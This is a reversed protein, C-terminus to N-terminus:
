EDLLIEVGDERQAVAGVDHLFSPDNRVNWGAANIRIGHAAMEHESRPRRSSLLCSRAKKWGGPRLEGNTLSSSFEDARVETEAFTSVYKKCVVEQWFGLRESPRKDFTTLSQKV